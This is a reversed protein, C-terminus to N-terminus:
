GIGVEIRRIIAMLRDLREALMTKERNVEETEGVFVRDAFQGLVSFWSVDSRTACKQLEEAVTEDEWQRLSAKYNRVDEEVRAWDAQHASEEQANLEDSDYVVSGQPGRQVDRNLLQVGHERLQILLTVDHHQEFKRIRAAQEEYIRWPALISNWVSAFYAVAFATVVAAFIAVRVNFSEGIDASVWGTVAATIVAIVLGVVVHAKLFTVTDRWARSWIARNYAGLSMADVAAAL